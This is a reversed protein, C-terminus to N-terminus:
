TGIHMYSNNLQSIHWALLPGFGRVQRLMSRTPVGKCGVLHNVAILLGLGGLRWAELISVRRHWYEYAASEKNLTRTEPALSRGYAPLLPYSSDMSDTDFLNFTCSDM